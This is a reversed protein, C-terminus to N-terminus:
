LRPPKSTSSSSCTSFIPTMSSRTSAAPPTKSRSTSKARAEKKATDPTPDAPREAAPEQKPIQHVLSNLMETLKSVEERLGSMKGLEQSLSTLRDTFKGLEEKSVVNASRLQKEFEKRLGKIITETNERSKKATDEFLDKMQNRQVESIHVVDRLAEEARAQAIKAVSLGAEILKGLKQSSDKGAM